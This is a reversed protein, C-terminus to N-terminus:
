RSRFDPCAMAKGGSLSGAPARRNGLSIVSLAVSLLSAACYATGLIDPWASRYKQGRLLALAAGPSVGDASLQMKELSLVYRLIGAFRYSCVARDIKAKCRAARFFAVHSSATQHPKGGPALWCLPSQHKRRKARRSMRTPRRLDTFCPKDGTRIGSTDYANAQCRQSLRTRPRLSRPPLARSQGPLPRKWGGHRYTSRSSPPVQLMEMKCRSQGPAACAGNAGM